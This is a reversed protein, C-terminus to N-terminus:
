FRLFLAAFMGVVINVAIGVVIVTATFPLVKDAPLRLVVPVGKWFIYLSYLGFIGLIALPPLIAFGGALWAATPSYVALKMATPEDAAGGFRPALAEIIKGWVWVGALGLVYGAISHLLLSFVGIQVGLAGGLVGAFLAGGIFGAVAPIASMPMAYGTFLGKTDAPEAAIIRWEEAPRLILGKARAIIDM